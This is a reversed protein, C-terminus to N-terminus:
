PNEQVFLRQKLRYAAKGGAGAERSIISIVWRGPPIDAHAAYVGPATEEFRLKRDDRDTVARTLRGTLIHGTVPEGARDTLKVVVRGAAAEYALGVRWSLEAQLRGAEITRNYDLGKQYPKSTDGGSHTAVAFYVFIGNVLFMIGFFGALALLVHKGELGKAFSRAEAM